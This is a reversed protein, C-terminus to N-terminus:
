EEVLPQYTYPGRTKKAAAIAEALTKCKAIQQGDKRVVHRYGDSELDRLELPTSEIECDHYNRIM